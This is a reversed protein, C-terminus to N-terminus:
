HGGETCRWVCPYRVSLFHPWITFFLVFDGPGSGSPLKPHKEQGDLSAENISQDVRAKGKVTLLPTFTYRSHLLLTGVAPLPLGGKQNIDM